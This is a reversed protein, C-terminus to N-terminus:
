EEERFEKALQMGEEESLWNYAANEAAAERLQAFRAARKEQGAKYDMYANYEDYSLIVAISRGDTEVIVADREFRTILRKAPRNRFNPPRSSKPCSESRAM